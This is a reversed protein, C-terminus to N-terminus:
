HTASLQDLLLTLRAEGRVFAGPLRRPAAGPTDDQGFPLDVAM